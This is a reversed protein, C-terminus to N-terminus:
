IGYKTVERLNKRTTGDYKILKKIVREVSKAIDDPRADGNSTIYFNFNNGMKGLKSDPIVTEPGNEGLMALTPSTVRGGQAYGPVVQGDDTFVWHGKGDTIWSDYWWVPRGGTVSAPPPNDKSPGGTGGTGGGPPTPVSPPPSV